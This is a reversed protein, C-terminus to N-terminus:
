ETSHQDRRTCNKKRNYVVACALTTNVSRGRAIPNLLVPQQNDCPSQMCPHSSAAIFHSFHSAEWHLSRILARGKALSLGEVLVLKRTVTSFAFPDLGFAKSLPAQVGFAKLISAHLPYPICAAIGSMCLM